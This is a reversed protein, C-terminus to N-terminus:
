CPASGDRRRSKGAARGRGSAPRLRVASVQTAVREEHGPLDAPPGHRDMARLARVEARRHKHILNTAIGYLWTRIGARAPDYRERKRFATLFTEAVVDDAQGRGIRQTVYSHIESSYADFVASFDDLSQDPPREVPTATM